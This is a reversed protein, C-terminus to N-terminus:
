GGRKLRELVAFPNPKAPEAPDEEEDMAEDIEEFAADPARPYPDLGLSLYQTTLEGIDIRNNVMPEPVDEDELTPDIDIEDGEEEIMSPPAFLAEFEESVHAPVSELSVVCTQVVDAELRGSVRVMQGGRAPRLRITATLSGIAELELRRALAQREVETAEITEILGDNRRVAEASVLRSFEPNPQAAPSHPHQTM